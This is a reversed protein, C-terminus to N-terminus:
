DKITVQGNMLLPLLYNKLQNLMMIEQRNSTISKLINDFQTKIHIRMNQPPCIIWFEKIDSDLLHGVTSGQILGQKHDLIPKINFYLQITSLPIEPIDRFRVCRQNLYCNNDFWYNM